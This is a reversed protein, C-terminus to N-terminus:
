SRSPQMSRLPVPGKGAALLRGAYGVATTLLGGAAAVAWRRSEAGTAGTARTARGPILGRVAYRAIAPLLTHRAYGRDFGMAASGFRRRVDAKSVGEVYCRQWLYKWTTRAAPVFHHVVADPAYWISRDGHTERLRLSVAIEENSHSKPQPGSPGFDHPFGGADLMAVRRAAMTCGIPRSLPQAATPHGAYTCGVVWYLEPPLIRNPREWRPVARGGTAVIAPDAFPATLHDLWDPDAVADDDIFAVVDGTAAAIGTNRAESVGSGRSALVTVAPPLRAPLRAHLSPNSDVVVVVEHPRSNAALSGVCEVLLELRRDTHTCVIVSVSPQM